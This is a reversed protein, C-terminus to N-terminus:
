KLIFIWLFKSHQHSLLSSLNLPSLFVLQFPAVGFSDEQAKPLPPVVDWSNSSAPKERLRSPVMWCCCQLSGPEAPAPSVGGARSPRPSMASGDAPARLVTDPCWIGPVPLICGPLARAKPMGGAARITGPWPQLCGAVAPLTMVSPRSSQQFRGAVGAGLASKKEELRICSVTM